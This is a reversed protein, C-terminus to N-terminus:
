ESTMHGCVESGDLKWNKIQWKRGYADYAKEGAGAWPEKLAWMRSHISTAPNLHDANSGDATIGYTGNHWRRFQEKGFRDLCSTAGRARAIHCRCAFAAHGQESAMWFHQEKREQVTGSTPLRSGVSKVDSAAVPVAIVAGSPTSPHATCGDQCLSEGRRAAGRLQLPWGGFPRDEDCEGCGGCEDGREMPDLVEEEEEEEEDEVQGAITSLVMAEMDWQEDELFPDGIDVPGAAQKAELQMM